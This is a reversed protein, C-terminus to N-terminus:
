LASGGPRDSWALENDSALLDTLRWLERADEESLRNVDLRGGPGGALEVVTHTYREVWQGELSSIREIITDLRAALQERDVPTRDDKAM